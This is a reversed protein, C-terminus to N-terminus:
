KKEEELYGSWNSMGFPSDNPHILIRQRSCIDNFSLVSYYKPFKQCEIIQDIM